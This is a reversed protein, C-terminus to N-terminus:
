AVMALFKAWHENAYVKEKYPSSNLATLFASTNVATAMFDGTCQAVMFNVADKNNLIISSYGLLASISSASVGAKTALGSWNDTKFVVVGYLKIYANCNNDDSMVGMYRASKLNSPISFVFLRKEANPYGYNIKFAGEVIDGEWNNLCASSVSKSAALSLWQGSANASARGKTEMYYGIIEYKSFNVASDSYALARYSKLYIHDSQKLASATYSGYKYSTVSWGGTVDTCEDGYDYLMTYNVLQEYKPTGEMDIEKWYSNTVIGNQEGAVFDGTGQNYYFVGHVKDYLCPTNNSDLVPIYDRILTDNDYIKCSYLKGIFPYDYQPTASSEWLLRLSADGVFTSTGFTNIVADDLMTVNKNKDIVHRGKLSVKPQLYLTGFTDYVSTFASNSYIGFANKSNDTRTAFLAAWGESTVTTLDFDMVVRTNSDPIFETDIFQTGTSEIYDLAILKETHKVFMQDPKHWAIHNTIATLDGAVFEGTSANYYFEGSVKDFLCPTDNEDLAPIYDRVLIDNDYIQCSYIRVNALESANGGTNGAFLNIHYEGAFTSTTHTVTEVGVTCVNKNFDVVHRNALNLTTPLNLNASNYDSRFYGSSHLLLGFRNTYSGGAGRACFLYQTTSINTFQFDCVIRTNQNAYLGTDIWQTGTSELYELTRIEKEAKVYIEKPNVWKEIFLTQPKDTILEGTTFTGTGANTYFKGEVLDYLGSTESSNICPIYDRILTDNDYIKCSYVRASILGSVTGGTNAGFLVLTSTSQFTSNTWTHSYGNVTLVNKNYDVNLRDTVGISSISVRNISSEYDANWTDGDLLLLGKAGSTASMRGEFLWAHSSPKETVQADMVIRSNNNHKVGTDIYQTGSSQIYELQTYGEPLEVPKVYYFVGTGQNYYLKKEVTDYLCAVNNEDLVPVYDRILTNNNYIKCSYIRTKSYGDITGTNWKRAFLAVSAGVNFTNAPLTTEGSPTKLVGSMLSVTMRKGVIIDPNHITSGYYLAGGAHSTYTDFGFRNTGSTIAGIIAGWSSTTTLPSNTLFDIEYGISQTAVVGTDIYQTGTSEIYPLVTLKKEVNVRLPEKIEIVTIRVYGNGSRGTVSSGSDPDKFSTAGTATAADTLYYASNLLCGSPYNSVTSSTYVYGSGGGGSARRAYGGGYWGGGGAAIYNTSGSAGIGFAAVTGYSTSNTTTGYYSTGGATQTGGLGAKYSTSYQGGAVGSTGGGAGGNYRYSGNYSGAGGGGGAVIVRAYLSTSAIRIDSGGGGASMDYTASSTYATGGGNFGGAFTGSTTGDTGKGGAYCYLMTEKDKLTLTGYSYGGKGGVYTTNFSGGQAGWVELKYIGKPLTITQYTGSYPVNIIDGTQLKSPTTQTLNYTAM